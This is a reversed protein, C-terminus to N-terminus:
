LFYFLRVLVSLFSSETFSLTQYVKDTNFHFSFLTILSDDFPM